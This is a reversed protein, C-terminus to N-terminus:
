IGNIERKSERKFPYFSKSQDVQRPSKSRIGRLSAWHNPPYMISVKITILMIHLAADYAKTNIFPIRPIRSRYSIHLVSYVLIFLVKWDTYREGRRNSLQIKGNQKHNLSTYLSFDTLWEWNYDGYVFVVISIKGNKKKPLWLTTESCKFLMLDPTYWNLNSASMPSQWTVYLLLNFANRAAQAIAACKWEISSVVDRPKPPSAVRTRSGLSWPFNVRVQLLGQLM